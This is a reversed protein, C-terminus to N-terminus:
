RPALHPTIDATLVTRLDSAERLGDPLTAGAKEHAVHRDDTAQTAALTVEGRLRELLELPHPQVPALQGPLLLHEDRGEDSRCLGGM